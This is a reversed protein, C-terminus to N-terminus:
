QHLLVPLNLERIAACTQLGLQTKPHRRSTALALSHSLRPAGLPCMQLGSRPLDRAVSGRPVISYGLNRKVLDLISQLTDTEIVIKPEVQAQRCGFEVSTRTINPSSPLILPYAPLDAFKVRKPFPGRKTSGVFVLEEKSLTELELSPIARQNYLLAIEIRGLQLWDSLTVSLGEVVNISAQPLKRRFSEILPGMVVRAIRPPIGVAIRGSSGSNVQAFASRARKGMELIASAQDRFVGGGPTLRVGRGTRYFLAGGLEEELLRVQRSLSPESVGMLEAARTLSGCQAIAVFYELRRFDL